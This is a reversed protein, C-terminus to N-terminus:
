TARDRAARLTEIEEATDGGAIRSNTWDTNTLTRSFVAKPASNMVEAYPHDSDATPFYQAMGQYTIRGMIHVGAGNLSSLVWAEHAPDDPVERCFAFFDTDEERIVGDLSYDFVQVVLKGM